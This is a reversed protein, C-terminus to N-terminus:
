WPTYRLGLNSVGVLGVVALGFVCFPEFFDMMEATTKELKTEQMQDIRKFVVDLGTPDGPSFLEGGSLGVINALEGPVDSDDIHIGFVVINHEKLTKAIELDRGGSLDSSSGDSVLIIMRDGEEREILKEKCALLAKGIATGQMWPPHKPNSPNMFPPACRFASVDTTLPVWHLVEYGFFTLGFADGERFELFQNIAEMSADYRTGKGFSGTMSGSVDVCFEINTLSRKSQPQGFRTPGACIIIAIALLLPWANELSTITLWWGRGRDQKHSHDFPLAIRRGRRKWLWIAILGPVVLLYLLYPNSFGM